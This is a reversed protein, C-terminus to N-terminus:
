VYVEEHYGEVKLGAKSIVDEARKLREALDEQKRKKRRAPV